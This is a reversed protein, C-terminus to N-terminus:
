FGKEKIYGLWEKFMQANANLASAQPIFYMYNLEYSNPTKGQGISAPLVDFGQREFLMKARQMHWQHTVLIIRKIDDKKLLEASYAANEKTNKAHNELWKVPVNFFDQLETAMVKAESTGNPSSGTILIPLHTQHYLYATYRERELTIPAVALSGSLEKSDRLGGGLVVIAQASQYDQLTLNDEVTLSDNLKQSTYLISSAYLVALSFIAFFYGCKRRNLRIIILGLIFLIMTSAPPLILATLIKSLEFM